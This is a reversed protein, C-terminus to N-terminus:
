DRLCYCLNESLSKSISINGNKNGYFIVDDKPYNFPISIQKYKYIEDIKNLEYTLEAFFKQNNIYLKEIDNKTTYTTIIKEDYKDVVTNEIKSFEVSM